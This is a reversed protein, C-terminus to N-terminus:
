APRAPARGILRRSRYPRRSRYVAWLFLAVFAIFPWSEDPPELPPWASTGPQPISVKWIGFKARTSLTNVLEGSSDWFESGGNAVYLLPKRYKAALLRRGLRSQQREDESDNFWSLDSLVLQFDISKLSFLGRRRWIDPLQHENCIAVAARLNPGIPLVDENQQPAMRRSLHTAREAIDNLIPVGQFPNIEVLPAGFQKDVQGLLQFNSDFSVATNRFITRVGSQERIMSGTVFFSSIDQGFRNELDTLSMLPEGNTDDPDNWEGISIAGEPLFLTDFHAGSALCAALSDAYNEPPPGSDSQQEGFQVVAFNLQRTAKSPRSLYRDTEGIGILAIVLLLAICLRRRTATRAAIRPAWRTRREHILWSGLAYSCFAMLAGLGGAGFWHAAQALDLNGAPLHASCFNGVGFRPLEVRIYDLAPLVLITLALGVLGPRRVLSSRLLAAVAAMFLGGYISVIALVLGAWSSDFQAVLWRLNLLVLGAGFGFGVMAARRPRLGIISSFFLSYGFVGFIAAGTASHYLLTVLALAAALALGRRDLILLALFTFAASLKQDDPHWSAALLM